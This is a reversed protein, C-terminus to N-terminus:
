ASATSGTATAFTRFGSFRVGIPAEEKPFFTEMRKGLMAQVLEAESLLAAEKSLVHM